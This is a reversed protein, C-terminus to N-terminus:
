EGEERLRQLLEKAKKSLKKPTDVNVTLLHDGRGHGGLKTAGKGKLRLQTGSQIGAPIKVTTPGDLTPVTATDGLAAQPFTISVTSLVDADKRRFVPDPTVHVTVYLDGSPAGREGAEGEGALRITQGDAIGAPVRVSLQKAEEMAGSGKCRSCVTRPIKGTGECRECVVVTKFQGLLTRQLREVRGRGDCAPCATTGAGPEAGSGKCRECASIRRIAITQTTGFAADRFSVTMALQLDADSRKRAATRQRTGAGFFDGFLDGLDFDFTQFNEGGYAGGQPFGGSRVFDEWSAGQTSGFPGAGNQFAAGFQDYQARKEKNGLVQYAENIEKFKVEDGGSKDPHHQHALRRYAKKIEDESASRPVGLISYYDQAM